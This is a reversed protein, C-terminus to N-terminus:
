YRLVAGIQIRDGGVQDAHLVDVEGGMRMVERVAMEVSDSIVDMKEGCSPCANITKSSFYGCASCVGGPHRYGDQIILTQIRGERLMDLTEQLGIVAGKGKAANTIVSEVMRAERTKEAADGIEMARQLVDIHSSQMSIPAKGVILSQWAKPLYSRFM